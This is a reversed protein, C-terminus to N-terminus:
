QHQVPKASERPYGSPTPPPLAQPPPGLVRLPADAGSAVAQLYLALTGAQLMIAGPPRRRSEWGPPARRDVPGRQRADHGSWSAYAFPHWWGGVVQQGAVGGGSWRWGSWAERTAAGESYRDVEDPAKYTADTHISFTYLTPLYPFAIHYPISIAHLNFTFTHLHICICPSAICHTCLHLCAHAFACIFQPPTNVM